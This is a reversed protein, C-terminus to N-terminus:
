KAPKTAVQPAVEAPKTQQQQQQQCSALVGAIAALILVNKM